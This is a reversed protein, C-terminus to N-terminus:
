CVPRLPRKCAQCLYVTGRQIRNHRIATLQHERCACHYDFRRFHRARTAGTDFRHCRAPDAGFQRMLQQWERGHPRVRRGYLQYVVLHAVEHPVTRQLFADGEQELLAANYRIGPHDRHLIAQGAALGQLDFGITPILFRRTYLSAAKDLYDLTLTRARAQLLTAPVTM